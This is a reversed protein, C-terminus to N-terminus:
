DWVGTVGEEREGESMSKNKQITRAELRIRSYIVTREGQSVRRTGGGKM